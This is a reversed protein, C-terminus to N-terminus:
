EALEVIDAEAEAEAEAEEEAADIPSSPIRRAPALGCCIGARTATFRFSFSFSSASGVSM